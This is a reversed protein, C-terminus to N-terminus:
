THHALGLPAALTLLWIWGSCLDHGCGSPRRVLPVNAKAPSKLARRGFGLHDRPARAVGPREAKMVQLWRQRSPAITHDHAEPSLVGPWM